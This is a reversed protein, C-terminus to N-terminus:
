EKNLVKPVKIYSDEYNPVAAVIADRNEFTEPLDDRWNSGETDARIAPEISQLDVNQLQGFWDVVQQIKPSFEEVETPTLSIRATQALRTLDPPELSSRVSCFGRRQQVYKSSNRHNLSPAHLPLPKSAFLPVAVARYASKSLSLSISSQILMLRSGM